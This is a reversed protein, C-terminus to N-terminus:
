IRGTNSDKTRRKDNEFNNDTWFYIGTIFAELAEATIANPFVLRALKKDYNKQRDIWFLKDVGILKELGEAIREDIRIKANVLLDFQWRNFGLVAMLDDPKLNMVHLSELITDGPPSLFELERFFREKKTM